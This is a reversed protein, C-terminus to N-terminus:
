AVKERAAELRKLTDAKGLVSAVEFPGPSAKRGTLAVRMPWLYEGVKLENAKLKQVIHKEIAQETWEKEPLEQAWGLVTSINEAAQEKTMKKWVLLDPEYEPIDVFFFGTLESVESLVKMREQELSVVGELYEKSLECGTAVSIYAGQENKEVLGDKELYPLSLGVLESVPKQRIYYGNFYDLKGTDFVAPSTGIDSFKFIDKLEDMRYIERDEKPHWGLLVCFNVLVEPLYGKEQYNEVSVDGHRKSLKGGEKNLILPLHVFVPEEWGFSRYLLVNKPLSPIWEEGRVVHSIQMLHDDVVSAFQYTPMGDSKVLIQDELEGAAFKIDGRLEDQVAVEGELPMKQRIVYKEGRDLKARADDRSINRCTRDYRPAQKAAQQEQRRQDLREASCFCYYAEGKEVLEKAYKEYIRMRESQVYPGYDGGTHPGEDFEIGAWELIDLLKEVAGEVYRKQDTDEIRLVLEGGASRATLYAFLATRLGGIHLYGTPSPAFRTRTKTM